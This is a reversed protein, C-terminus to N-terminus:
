KSIKFSSPSTPVSIPSLIGLLRRWATLASGSAPSSRMFQSIVVQASILLWISLLHLWGPAGLRGGKSVARVWQRMFSPREKATRSVAGKFYIWYVETEKPRDQIFEKVAKGASPIRERGREAGKRNMSEKEWFLYIFMLFCFLLLLFIFLFTRCVSHSSTRKRRRGWKWFALM